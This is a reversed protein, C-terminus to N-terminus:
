VVTSVSINPLDSLFGWRLGRNGGIRGSSVLVIMFRGQSSEQRDGYNRFLSHIFSTLAKCCLCPLFSYKTKLPFILHTIGDSSKLQLHLELKTCCFTCRLLHIHSLLAQSQMEVMVQLSPNDDGRRLDLMTNFATISAARLSLEPLRPAEECPLLCKYYM